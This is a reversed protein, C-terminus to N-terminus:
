VVPAATTALPAYCWHCATAECREHVIQVFPEDSFLLEGAAIHRAAVVHRGVGESELVLLPWHGARTGEKALRRGRECGTPEVDAFCWHTSGTTRDRDLRLLQKWEM